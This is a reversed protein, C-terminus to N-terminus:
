VFLLLFVAAGRKTQMYGVSWVIIALSVIITLIGTILFNPIITFAEETGYLWMQQEDGIAQIILGETPTNGQLIEFFGHVI